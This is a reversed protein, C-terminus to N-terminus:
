TPQSEEVPATFTGDSNYTYGRDAIVNEINVALHTSPPTWCDSGDWVITNDVINTEKNILAYKSM